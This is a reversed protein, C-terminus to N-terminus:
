KKQQVIMFHNKLIVREPEIADFYKKLDATPEFYYLQAPINQL